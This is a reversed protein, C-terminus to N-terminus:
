VLLTIPAQKGGFEEDSFRCMFAGAPGRVPVSFKCM